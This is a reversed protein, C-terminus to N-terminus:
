KIMKKKFQLNLFKREKKKEQKKLVGEIEIKKVAVIHGNWKAKFVINDNIIFNFICKIYFCNIFFLFFPVKALSEKALVKTFCLITTILTNKFRNQNLNRRNYILILM